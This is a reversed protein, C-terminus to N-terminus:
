AARGKKDTRLEEVRSQINKRLLDKMEPDRTDIYVGPPLLDKGADFVGIEAARQLRMVEDINRNLAQANRRKLRTEPTLEFVKFRADQEFPQKSLFKSQVAASIYNRAKPESCGFEAMLAAQFPQAEVRLNVSKVQSWVKLIKRYNVDVYQGFAHCWALSVMTERNADLAAEYEDIDM